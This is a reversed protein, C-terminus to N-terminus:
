LRTCKVMRSKGEDLQTKLQLFLIENIHKTSSMYRSPMEFSFQSALAVYHQKFIGIGEDMEELEEHLDRLQCIATFNGRYIHMLEFIFRERTELYIYDVM